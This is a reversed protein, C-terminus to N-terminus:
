MERRVSWRGVVEDREDMLRDLLLGRYSFFLGKKAKNNNGDEEEKRDVACELRSQLGLSQTPSTPFFLLTTEM